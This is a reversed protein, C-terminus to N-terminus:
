GCHSWKTKEVRLVLRCILAKSELFSTATGASAEPHYNLQKWPPLAETVPAWTGTHPPESTGYRHEEVNWVASEHYGRSLKEGVM